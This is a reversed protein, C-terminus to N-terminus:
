SQSSQSPPNSKQCFVKFYPYSEISVADLFVILTSNHSTDPWVQWFWLCVRQRDVILFTIPHPIKTKCSNEEQPPYINEGKHSYKKLIRKRGRIQERDKEMFSNKEIREERETGLTWTTMVEQQFWKVISQPLLKAVTIFKFSGGIEAQM